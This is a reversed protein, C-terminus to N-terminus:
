GYNPGTGFSTVACRIEYDSAQLIATIRYNTDGDQWTDGIAIDADWKAILIYAWNRVDAYEAHTIGDWNSIVAILKFTQSDKPTGPLIEYGGDGTAFKTHPVLAIMTPDHAIFHETLRRNAALGKETSIARTM